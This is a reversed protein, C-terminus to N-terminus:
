KSRRNWAKILTDRSEESWSDEIGRAGIYTGCIWCELIMICDQADFGIYAADSNGCFPCPELKTM